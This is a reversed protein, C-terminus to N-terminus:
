PAGHHGEEVQPKFLYRDSSFLPKSVNVLGAITGVVDDIYPLLDVAFNDTLIKFIKMRQIAREVHVRAASIKQNREAEDKSLQQKSRLFPPRILKVKHEM